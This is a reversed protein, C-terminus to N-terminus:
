TVNETLYLKEDRIYEEVGKPVLYLISRGERVRRRIDTSSIDINLVDVFIIRDGFRDNVRTLDFGPRTTVIVHCLGLLEEPKKWTDIEFISDGGMIFFIDAHSGYTNRFEKLTDITYSKGHRKMEMDSIEFNPNDRVALQTMIFRHQSDILPSHVKHPPRASPMFVIKHLSCQQRVEEAVILHGLHPPNFTGGFIGIRTISTKM